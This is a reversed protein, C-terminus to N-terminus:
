HSANMDLMESYIINTDNLAFIPFSVCVHNLFIEVSPCKSCGDLDGHYLHTLRKLRVTPISAPLIQVHSM